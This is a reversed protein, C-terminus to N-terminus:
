SRLTPPSLWRSRTALVVAIAAVVYLTAVVPDGHQVSDAVPVFRVALNHGAHALMVILLSGQTGNYIWAFVVSTAILRVFTLLVDSWTTSSLGGPALAPWLHWVSWIAGVAVAAWLVGYRAQLRPQGLGRWGVEEGFSGAILAGVLFAIAAAGPIVLWHPPLALGLGFRVVDGVLFLVSPGVLAVLYWAFGIRWRVVPRVLRGIGGGGPVVAVVLLAALTPAYATIEIGIGVLVPIPTSFTLKSLDLRYFFLPLAGLATIVFLALLWFVVV